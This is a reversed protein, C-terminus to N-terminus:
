FYFINKKLSFNGPEVKVKDLPVKAVTRQLASHQVENLESAEGGVPLGRRPRDPRPSGSLPCTSEPRRRRVTQRVLDSRHKHLSVTKLIESIVREYQVFAVSNNILDFKKTKLILSWHVGRELTAQFLEKNLLSAKNYM